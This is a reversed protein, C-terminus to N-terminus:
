LNDYEDIDSFYNDDEVPQDFMNGHEDQAYIHADMYDSNARKFEILQMMVHELVHRAGKKDPALSKTIGLLDGAERIYLDLDSESGVHLTLSLCDFLSLSLFQKSSQICKNTLQALQTEVSSFAEDLDFLELQPPPLERFPPPFVAPQLPPQPVEFGPIVLSLPEHKLELRHYCKIAEAWSSLDLSKISNDFLRTFDVPLSQEVESEQLCMKLKRSMHMIDPIPHPDLLDPDAADITNLEIGEALWKILIDFVKANEEKDFYQDTFIQTSGIVAIRGGSAIQHVACVPRAIPFCVSGTSLIPTSQKVDVTLTAGFPYVFSLAQDNNNDDVAKTASKGAAVAIARNLVGNSILAEKPDFYKYFVTRIVADNNCAIGYEELLFNINTDAAVEGGENLMVLLHGGDNLYKRLLDFEQEYFKNRPCPLIFIRCKEFTAETFEDSNIDLNWQNRVHKHLQRFGSRLNFQEKKSQDIVILNSQQRPIEQLSAPMQNFRFSPRRGTSPWVPSSGTPM